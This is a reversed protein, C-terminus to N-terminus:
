PESHELIYQFLILQTLNNNNNVRSLEQLLERFDVRRKILDFLIKLLKEGDLKNNNKYDEILL